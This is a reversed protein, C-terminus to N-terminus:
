LKDTCLTSFGALQGDKSQPPVTISSLLYSVIACLRKASFYCCSLSVFTAASRHLTTRMEKEVASMWVEVAGDIVAPTAFDFAEGQLMLLGM